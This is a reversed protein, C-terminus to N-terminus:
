DIGELEKGLEGWNAEDLKWNYRCMTKESIEPLPVHALIAKHDAIAPLVKMRIEPLDSLFLDLLYQERTPERVLQLLGFSDCLVKMESGISTNGNSHFLWRRHHINLDGSIITGSVQASFVALESQLKEFGDHNSAGPRYWNGVLITEAGLNMFHWSREEEACNSIFSLGNFDERAM